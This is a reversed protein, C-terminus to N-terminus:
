ITNVDSIFRNNFFHHYGLLYISSKNLFPFVILYEIYKTSELNLHEILQVQILFRSKEVNEM